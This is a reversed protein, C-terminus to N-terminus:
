GLELKWEFNSEVNSELEMGAIPSDFNVTFGQSEM